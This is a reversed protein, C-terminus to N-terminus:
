MMWAILTASVIIMVLVHLIVEFEKVIIIINRVM